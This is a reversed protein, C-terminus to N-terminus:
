KAVVCEYGKEGRIRRLTGKKTLDTLRGKITGTPFHLANVKMADIIEGLNRPKQRGWPSSLVMIIAEPCSIGIQAGITPYLDRTPTVSEQKQIPTIVSPLSTPFALSVKEVIKPLDDLTKSIEEPSGTVEIENNGIKIRISLTKESM